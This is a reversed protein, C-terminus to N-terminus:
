GKALSKELSKHYMLNELRSEAHNALIELLDLAITAPESAGFDGYTLSITKGRLRLPLLLITSHLPAGVAAFLHERLTADDSRGYYINGSEATRALLSSEALPVRLGTLPTPGDGKDARVGIGKEAILESGRVVLTIARAFILTVFQLLLLATEPPNKTESLTKVSKKLEVVLPDYQEAAYQRLFTQFALLFQITEDAFSYIEAGLSPKPLVARVGDSYAQLFATFDGPAVLQIIDIQPYKEKARRRLDSIQAPSFPGGSEAPVDFVLTPLTNKALSQAIIPELNEEENTAFVLVGAQKCTTTILYKSLEDASYFLISRPHGDRREPRASANGPSPSKGLFSALTEREEPALHPAIEELRRDRASDPDRDELATFAEPIRTDLRDLDGLGLDDLSLPLAEEGAEVDAPSGDDAELEEDETLEGDRKKEDYIRLADMLIRQTDVYIEENLRDSYYNVEDEAGQPLVDLVFTGRKWTLIEVVTMEILQELGKYANREDVMGMDILTVILPKCNPGAKKQALLAEELLEQSIVGMDLLIKGIRISNNLHNASVINGEKFTLQSEGKRCRVHLKGSKRTSHLLQIVDVIPLHELDGTFSM